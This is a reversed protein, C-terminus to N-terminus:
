LKGPLGLTPRLVQIRFVAITKTGAIPITVSMDGFFCTFDHSNSIGSESNSSSFAFSQPLSQVFFEGFRVVLFLSSALDLICAEVAKRMKLEVVEVSKHAGSTM